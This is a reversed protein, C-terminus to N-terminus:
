ESLLKEIEYSMETLRFANFGKSRLDRVIDNAMYCYRGRCFAYITKRKSLLNLNAKMKEKPFFIAMSTPSSEHDEKERVDLLIAKNDQVDKLIKKLPLETVLDSPCLSEEANRIEPVIASAIKQFQIFAEIISPNKLSYSRQVGNKSDIVLGAKKLKQLHQSTNAISEHLRESLDEVNISRNSLIQIIRLRVPSALAHTLHSLSLFAESRANNLVELSNNKM